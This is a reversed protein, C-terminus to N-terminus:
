DEANDQCSFDVIQRELCEIKSLDNRELSALVSIEKLLVENTTTKRRCPECFHLFGHEHLLDLQEREGDNLPYCCKGCEWLVYRM